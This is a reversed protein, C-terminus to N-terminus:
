FHELLMNFLFHQIRKIANQWAQHDTDISFLMFHLAGKINNQLKNKIIPNEKRCPKAGVRGFILSFM